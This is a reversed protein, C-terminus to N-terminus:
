IDFNRSHSKNRSTDIKIGKLPSQRIFEILNTKPKVLKKYEDISLIVAADKGNETILQPGENKAIEVLNSFKNKAEQLQWKRNM